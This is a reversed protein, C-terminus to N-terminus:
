LRSMELRFYYQQHQLAMHMFEQHHRDLHLFHLELQELAHSYQKDSSRIM